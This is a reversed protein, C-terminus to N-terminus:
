RKVKRTAWTSPYPPRMRVIEYERGGAKMLGEVPPTFRLGHDHVGKRGCPCQYPRIM